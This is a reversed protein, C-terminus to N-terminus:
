CPLNPLVSALVFRSSITDLMFTGMARAGALKLFSRRRIGQLKDNTLHTTEM